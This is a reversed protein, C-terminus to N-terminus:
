CRWLSSSEMCDGQVKRCEGGTTIGKTSELTLGLPFILILTIEATSSTAQAHPSHKTRTEGPKLNAQLVPTIKKAYKLRVSALALRARSYSRSNKKASKVEHVVRGKRETQKAPCILRWTQNGIVFRQRISNTFDLVARWWDVHVATLVIATLKRM